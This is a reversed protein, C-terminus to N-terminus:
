PCLTYYQVFVVRQLSSPPRPHFARSKSKIKLTRYEEFFFNNISIGGEDGGNILYSISKTSSNQVRVGGNFDQKRTRPHSM